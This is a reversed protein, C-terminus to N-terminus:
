SVRTNITKEVVANSKAAMSTHAEKKKKHYIFTGEEILANAGVAAIEGVPGFAAGAYSIGTEAAHKTLGEWDKKKVDNQVVNGVRAGTAMLLGYTPLATKAAAGLAKEVTGSESTVEGAASMFADPANDKVQKWVGGLDKRHDYLAKGFEFTDAAPGGMAILSGRAVMAGIELLSNGHETAHELQSYANM